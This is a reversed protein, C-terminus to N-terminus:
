FCIGISIKNFKRAPWSMAEHESIKVSRYDLKVGITPLPWVIVGFGFSDFQRAKSWLGTNGESDPVDFFDKNFSELGYGYGILVYPNIFELKDLYPALHIPIKLVLNGSVAIFDSRDLTPDSSFLNQDEKLYKFFDVQLQLFHWIDGGFTVGVLQTNDASSGTYGTYVTVNEGKRRTKQAMSTGWLIFVLLFVLVTKRM